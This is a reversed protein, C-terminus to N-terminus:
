LYEIELLQPLLYIDSWDNLNLGKVELHEMIHEM